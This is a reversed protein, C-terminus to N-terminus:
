TDDAAWRDAVEVDSIWGARDDAVCLAGHGTPSCFDGPVCLPTHKDCRASTKRLELIKM